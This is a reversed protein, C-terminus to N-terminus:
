KKSKKETQGKNSKKKTDEDSESESESSSDSDSDSSSSDSESDSDSDSDSDSVEKKNKKDLKKEESEEESVEEVKKKSGESSKIANKLKGFGFINLNLSASLSSKSRETIYMQLCKVTIGCKRVGDEETRMIWFKNFELAFKVKCKWTFLNRIDQLCTITEPYEKCNGDENNIFVTTKIEKPDDKKADKNYNLSFKVKIRKYKGENDGGKSSKKEDDSDDEDNGNKSPDIESILSRYKLKKIGVKTKGEGIKYVFKDKNHKVNIEENNKDDIPKIVNEFLQNSGADNKLWPLWFYLCHNDTPRWNDDIKPIGGRDMSITDTIVICREENGDEYVYRPFANDQTAKQNDKTVLIAGLKYNDVNFDSDHVNKLSGEETANSTEQKTEKKSDKPM